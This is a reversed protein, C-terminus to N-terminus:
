DEWKCFAKVEAVAQERSMTTYRYRYMLHSVLATELDRKTSLNEIESTIFRLYEQPEEKPTFRFEPM